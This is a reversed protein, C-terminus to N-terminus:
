KKSEERVPVMETEQQGEEELGCSTDDDVGADAPAAVYSSEEGVKEGSASYHEFQRYRIVGCVIYFHLSM